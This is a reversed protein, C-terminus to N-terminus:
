LKVSIDLAHKQILYINGLLAFYVILLTGLGVFRTNIFITWLDPTINKLLIGMFAVLGIIVYIQMSLGNRKRHLEDRKSIEHTMNNRIQEFMEEANGGREDFIRLNDHFQNLGPYRYKKFHETDLQATDEMSYIVKQIDPKIRDSAQSFSGKLSNLVNVKSGLFFTMNFVYQLLSNLDEQYLKLKRNPYSIILFTYIVGVFGIILSVPVNGSLYYFIGSHGIFYIIFNMIIEIDTFMTTSEKWKDKLSMKEKKREAKELAKLEKITKSRIREGVIESRDAIQVNDAYNMDANFNNNNEQYMNGNDYNNQNNNNM